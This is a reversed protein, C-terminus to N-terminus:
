DTEKRPPATNQAGIRKSKRYLDYQEATWAPCMGGSAAALRRARGEPVVEGWESVTPPKVGAAKAVNTPGGFFRIADQKLM